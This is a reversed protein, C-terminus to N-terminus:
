RRVPVALADVVSAGAASVIVPNLELEAWGEESSWIELLRQVVKKLEALAAPPFGPTAAVVRRLYRDLEAGDHLRAVRAAQLSSQAEVDGGGPGMLLLSGWAADRSVGVFVECGAPTMEEVIVIGDADLGLQRLRAAVEDYAGAIEEESGIGLRLVGAAAKHPLYPSVGKVVVPFALTRHAQRAEDSSAVVAFGPVRVGLDDLRRKLEVETVVPEAARLTAHKDGEALPRPAPAAFLHRAALFVDDANEACGVGAGVFAQRIPGDASPWVAVVPRDSGSLGRALGDACVLGAAGIHQGGVVAVLDIGEGACVATAIRELTRPDTVVEPPLDIPNGVRVYSPLLASLEAVLDPALAPLVLGQRSAADSALVGYGGSTAVLLARVPRDLVPWTRRDGGLVQAVGVTSLLSDTVIAGADTLLQRVIFPQQILGGTHSSAAQAGADSTGGVLAVVRTGGSVAEGIADLLRESRHLNEVYLVAATTDDRTAVYRLVDAQDIGAENGVAAIISKGVGAGEALESLLGAVGGSQSVFAVGGPAQPQSLPSSFTAYVNEAVNAFGMTNPGMLRIGLRDAAETLERQLRQGEEGTEGFGASILVVNHIGAAACEHLAALCKSAALGVIALDPVSPLDAVSAYAPRGEIADYKGNVPYIEGRYGGADLARLLRNAPATARPSAGVLAISRPAFFGALSPGTM